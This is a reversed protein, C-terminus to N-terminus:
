GLISAVEEETLGLAALKAQASAKAALKDAEAKLEKAKISEITENIESQTPIKSPPIHWVINEYDEETLSWESGSVLYNLAKATYNM